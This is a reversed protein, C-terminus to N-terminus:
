RALNYVYKGGAEDFSGGVYLVGAGDVALTEIYPQNADTIGSGLPSWANGDWKAVYNAAVGGAITFAGGAYLNGDADSALTRISHPKTPASNMGQGAGLSSWAGGEWMAVHNVAVGGIRIFNGGVFFKGPTAVLASVEWIAVGGFESWTSGDWRALTWLGGAYLNGADDWALADIKGDPGSGLASWTTGDWRAVNKAAAGGAASFEGGAYLNGAGDVALAMVAYYGGEIGTGLASWTSGDWRAINNVAAGGATGFTGGVYLSGTGDLALARVSASEGGIGAGLASWTSGNWRAVHNAAVGGATTFTGCAYLNGAGDVALAAVPGNTGGGLPSWTSGDWKAVNNAASGGASTFDGAAYLNGAGDLALASVYPFGGAVGSGLPTWSAGDWKAINNAFTGGASGFLGGAYLNGARDVALEGVWGDIGRMYFIDSWHGGQAATRPQASHQYAISRPIREGGVGEAPAPPVIAGTLSYLLTAASLLTKLLYKGNM